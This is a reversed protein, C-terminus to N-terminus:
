RIQANLKHTFSRILNNMVKDISKDTLTKEVDQLIFSVAYSKKNEGLKDSEFVDFISVDKLLKTETKYAIEVIEEFKVTKELLLALDRKVEPYKPIESYSVKLNKAFSILTDWEIEAFYVDNEIEFRNLLTKNVSGYSVLQKNNNDKILLGFSFIDSDLEEIRIRKKDVGFKKLLLDIYSKLYYFDSPKEKLKWHEHYSNGSIFIGLKRKEIFKDLSKNSNSKCDMQYVNGFEFLRLNYNKRNNNHNIAELGGFLLSQRMANLDMSLPNFLGVAKDSPFTELNEYYNQKMLSNSMIENFDNDSLFDSVWNILKENDPKKSYSVSSNLKFDIEINNYGYIRLIEEIIDAERTVDVRYTAVKLKLGSEKEEIIEFELSILIKKIIDVPIKKGILRYVNAYSIEVIKSEIAKPYEDVIESSITGGALEKILLATRKLTFLINNPDTGREFRFSSDTQLQHYKSTKRVWVPNFYACELFISKTENTVGSYIGGFVGGICMGGKEDCIMLDNNTLTREAEDLTVFKSSEPLTKVIVKKGEIKDADFAHLPQGTEHLVYNTIDVVNNIPALGIAGLRNKLWEPSEKVEIDSITLGSYRPCAETNEVIVPINLKNNDIKFNSIDPKQYATEKELSFYASLDRAVGIHSASDIRNPTLGIEFVTDHEVNFYESAPLGVTANSDLVMIGDHSDGLGIEDEACIMGESLCGRLKTKKITFTDNGIQMQTGITAVIVKQGKDVNPAGCVIDLDEDAGINVKTLSLKDANPHKEKHLVEGIVLGKLGGKISTFDEIGEVELGIDTLIESIKDIELDIDIYQKLWNLSIKM